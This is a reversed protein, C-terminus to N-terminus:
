GRNREPNRARGADTRPPPTPELLATELGLEAVRDLVRPLVELSVPSYDEREAADHLMVIAGDEIRPLVRAAVREATAGRVGDLARVSWGSLTVRAREAAIATLHSVFGIPPRFLSPRQGCVAEIVDQTREIDALVYSTSRLSYLRDHEYGHLGLAHGQGVIERVVEPYREVKRGVVFFTAKAGRAALLRLVARTTEPHPGDDFTLAVRKQGLPLETIPDAYVRLGPFLAGLTAWTALLLLLGVTVGIPPPEVSFARVALGLSAFSLIWLLVRAPPV